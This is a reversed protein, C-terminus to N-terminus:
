HRLQRRGRDAVREGVQPTKGLNVDRLFEVAGVVGKLNGGEATMGTSKQAGIALYVADYAKLVDEYAVDRGVKTNTKLEVGLDLIDNIERSSYGQAFPVRSNGM